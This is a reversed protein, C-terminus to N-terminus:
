MVDVYQITEEEGERIEYHLRMAEPRSGYLSDRTKPTKLEPHNPLIDRDFAYEWQVEVEYGAQTIQALRSMTQEYRASLTDDVMTTVDRFPLCTHGHFYCALFEYVKKTESCFGDVSLHPLEPMRYKRGNRGHLIECRDIEEKYSLWM